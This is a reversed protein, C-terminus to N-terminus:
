KRELLLKRAAELPRPDVWDSLAFDNDIFGHTWLFKKQQDFLALREADLTPHLSQLADDTYAEAVAEASGRTESQLVQRVDSVHDRAWDAARLTQYLFRALVDFHDDILSQHM